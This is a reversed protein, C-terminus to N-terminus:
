TTTERIIRQPRATSSSGSLRGTYEPRAAAGSRHTEATVVGCNSHESAIQASERIRQGDFLPLDFLLESEHLLGTSEGHPGLLRAPVDSFRSPEVLPLMRPGSRILLYEREESLGGVRPAIVHEDRGIVETIRM